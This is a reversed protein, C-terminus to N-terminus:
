SEINVVAAFVFFKEFIEIKLNIYHDRSTESNTTQKGITNTKNNLTMKDSFYSALNFILAVTIQLHTM